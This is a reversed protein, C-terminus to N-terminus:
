TEAAVVVMVVPRLATAAASSTVSVVVAAYMVASGRLAAAAVVAAASIVFAGVAVVTGLLGEDPAATAGVAAPEEVFGGIAVSAKMEAAVLHCCSRLMLVEAIM